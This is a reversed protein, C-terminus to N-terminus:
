SLRPILNMRLNSPAIGTWQISLSSKNQLVTVDNSSMAAKKYLKCNHFFSKNILINDKIM